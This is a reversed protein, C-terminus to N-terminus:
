DRLVFLKKIGWGIGKFIIGLPGPVPKSELTLNITAFDVKGKLSKIRGEM